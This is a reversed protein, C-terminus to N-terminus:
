LNFIFTLGFAVLGVVGVVVDKSKGKSYYLLPFITSLALPILLGVLKPMTSGPTGDKLVQMVVIDPLIIMGTIFAAAALAIIVLAVTFRKQKEM